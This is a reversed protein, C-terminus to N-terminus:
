AATAQAPTQRLATLAAAEAAEAMRRTDALPAYLWLRRGGVVFPGLAEGAPGILPTGLPLGFAAPVDQRAHTGRSALLVCVVVDRGLPLRTWDTLRPAHELFVTHASRCVPGGGLHQALEDASRDGEAAAPSGHGIVLLDPVDAVADAVHGLLSEVHRTVRESGGLAPLIRLDEIHRGHEACLAPILRTAFVGEGAFHPVVLVRRDPGLRRLADALSPEGKVLAGVAPFLRRRAVAAAIGLTPAGAAPDHVSGHGAIVLVADPPPVPM